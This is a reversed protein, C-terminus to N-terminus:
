DRQQREPDVYFLESPDCEFIELKQSKFGQTKQCPEGTWSCNGDGKHLRPCHLYVSKKTENIVFSIEQQKLKKGNERLYGEPIEPAFPCAEKTIM